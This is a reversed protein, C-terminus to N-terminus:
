VLLVVSRAVSVGIPPSDKFHAVYGRTSEVEQPPQLLWSAPLVAVLLPPAVSTQQHTSSSAADLNKVLVEHNEGDCDGQSSQDCATAQAEADDSHCDLGHAGHCHSSQVPVAEGTCVCLFIVQSGCVQMAICALAFM